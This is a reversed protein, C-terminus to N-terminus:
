LDKGLIQMYEAMQHIHLLLLIYERPQLSRDSHMICAQLVAFTKITERVQAIALRLASGFLLPHRCELLTSTARRLLTCMSPSRQTDRHTWTSKFRLQKIRTDRRMLSHKPCMRFHPLLFLSRNSIRSRTCPHHHRSRMRGRKDNRQSSRLRRSASGRRTVTITRRKRLALDVALDPLRPPHLDHNCKLMANSHSTSLRRVAM